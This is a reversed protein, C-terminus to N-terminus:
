PNRRRAIESELRHRIADFDGDTMPEAPGSRLRAMLVSEVRGRTTREWDQRILSTVYEGASAYRGSSVQEDVLSRVEDPLSINLSTM